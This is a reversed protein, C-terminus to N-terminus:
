RRREAEFLDFYDACTMKPLRKYAETTSQPQPQPTPSPLKPAAAGGMAMNSSGPALPANARRSPVEYYERHGRARAIRIPLNIMMYEYLGDGLSVGITALWHTLGKRYPGPQIDLCEGRRGFERKAARTGFIMAAGIMGCDNIRPDDADIRTFGECVYIHRVRKM